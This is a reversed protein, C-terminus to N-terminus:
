RPPSSRPRPQLHLQISYRGKTSSHAVGLRSGGSDAVAVMVDRLPTGSADKVYGWITYRHDVTHEATADHTEWLDWLLVISVALLLSRFM